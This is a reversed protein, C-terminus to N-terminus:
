ETIGLKERAETTAETWSMGRKRLDRVMAWLANDATKDSDNYKKIFRESGNPDQESTNKAAKDMADAALAGEAEAQAAVTKKGKDQRDAEGKRAPYEDPFLESFASDVADERSKKNRDYVDAM